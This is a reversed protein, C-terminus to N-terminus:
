QLLKIPQGIEPSADLRMVRNHVARATNRSGQFHGSSVETRAIDKLLKSRDIRERRIALGDGVRKPNGPETWGLVFFPSAFVGPQKTREARQRARRRLEALFQM